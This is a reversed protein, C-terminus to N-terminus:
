WVRRGRARAMGPVGELDLLREATDTLGHENYVALALFARRDLTHFGPGSVPWSHGDAGVRYARGQITWLDGVRAAEGRNIADIDARMDVTVDAVTNTRRRRTSQRVRTSDHRHRNPIRAPPFPVRAGGENTM